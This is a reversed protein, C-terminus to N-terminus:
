ELTIVLEAEFLDDSLRVGYVYVKDAIAFDSINISMDGSLSVVWIVGADDKVKIINSSKHIEVIAGQFKSKEVSKNISIDNVFMGDMKVSIDQELRLAYLGNADVTGLNNLVVENSVRYKKVIGSERQITVYSKEGIIIETLTGKDESSLGTAEVKTMKGNSLYLKVIDGKSIAEGNIKVLELDSELIEEVYNDSGLKVSVASGKKFDTSRNLIGSVVGEASFGTIKKADFGDFSVTIQDGEKYQDFTALDFDKEVVTTLFIKKYIAKGADNRLTLVRYKSGGEELFDSISYFKGTIKEYDQTIKISTLESGAINFSVKQGNELADKELAQGDKSIVAKDLGYVHLKNNNDRIEVINKDIHVM